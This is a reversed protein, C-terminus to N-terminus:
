VAAQAACGNETEPGARVARLVKARRKSRKAFKEEQAKILKENREERSKVAAVCASYDSTNAILPKVTAPAGLLLQHKYAATTIPTGNM